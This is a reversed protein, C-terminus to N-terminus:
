DSSSGPALLERLDRAFGELEAEIRVIQRGLINYALVAPIAVALGAATMVLSEGVPGSIQDISVQAGSAIGTLAHYIGWVTGLLGVFPATSGVTALLVQGYQLRHLGAHLADRLARTLQQGRGGAAALTGSEPQRTADLLPLVLGCRDFGALRPEAEALDPAQWFAAISRQVDGWARLLLWSKWLLVVWSSVSMLLLLLAVTRSVGDSQLLLQGVNM